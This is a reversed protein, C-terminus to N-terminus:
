YIDVLEIEFILTSYPPVPGYGKEGYALYSPIIFQAKGSKKMYSLGEEWGKIVSGYGYKFKIPKGRKLSTDFIQGNIFKGIYNVVLTDGPKPTKGIGEKEELYYLGTNTPEITINANKLYSDLLESEQETKSLDSLKKEQNFLKIDMISKLRVYFILKDDPSIFDPKTKMGRSLIYFDMANVKFIASDGVHMMLLAEDISGDYKAENIRMRFKNTEERSNFLVSDTETTYKFDLVVIDGIKVDSSDKNHEIFKYEIGNDSIDFGNTNCSIFTILLGFIYVIHKM